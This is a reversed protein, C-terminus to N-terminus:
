ASQRELPFHVTFTPLVWASPLDSKGEVQKGESSQCTCGDQEQWQQMKEDMNSGAEEPPWCSNFTLLSKL